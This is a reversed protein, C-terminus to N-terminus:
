LGARGRHQVPLERAADCDVRESEYLEDVLASGVEIEEIGTWGTTVVLEARYEEAQLGLTSAKIRLPLDKSVM